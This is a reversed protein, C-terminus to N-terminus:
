VKVPMQRLKNVVLEIQKRELKNIRLDREFKGGSINRM